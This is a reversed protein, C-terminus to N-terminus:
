PFCPKTQAVERAALAACPFDRCNVDVAYRGTVNVTVQLQAVEAPIDWALGPHKENPPLVPLRDRTTDVTFANAAPLRRQNDEDLGCVRLQRSSLCGDALQVHFTDGAQLDRQFSHGLNHTKGASQVKVLADGTPMSPARAITAGATVACGEQVKQCAVLAGGIMM